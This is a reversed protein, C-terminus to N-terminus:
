KQDMVRRYRFSVFARAIGTASADRAAYRVTFVGSDAPIAIDFGNSVGGTNARISWLLIGNRLIEFYGGDITAINFSFNTITIPYPIFPSISITTQRSDHFMYTYVAAGGGHAALGASDSFSLSELDGLYAERVNDYYYVVNTISDYKQKVSEVNIVDNTISKGDKNKAYQFALAIDDVVSLYTASVFSRKDVSFVHAAGVVTYIAKSIVVRDGCRIEPNYSLSVDTKKHLVGDVKFFGRDTQVSVPLVHQRRSLTTGIFIEGNSINWALENDNSLKRIVDILYSDNVMERVDISGYFNLVNMGTIRGLVASMEGRLEGSFIDNDLQSFTEDDLNITTSRNSKTRTTDVYSVIGTAILINSSTAKAFVKVVGDTNMASIIASDANVISISSGYRNGIIYSSSISISDCSTSFPKGDM